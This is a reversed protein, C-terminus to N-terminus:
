IHSSWNKYMYENIDIHIDHIYKQILDTNLPVYNGIVVM